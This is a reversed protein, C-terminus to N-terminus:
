PVNLSEEVQLCFMWPVDLSVNLSCETFEEVQLCFM